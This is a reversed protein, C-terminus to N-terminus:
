MTPKLKAQAVSIFLWDVLFLNFTRGDYQRSHLLYAMSKFFYKCLVDSLPENDLVPLSRKFSLLFCAQQRAQHGSNIERILSM